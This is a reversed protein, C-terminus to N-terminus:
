TGGYGHVSAILRAPRKRQVLTNKTRRVTQDILRTLALNAETEPVPKRHFTSRTVGPLECPRAISLGPHDPAIVMRRRDASMPRLSEGFFGTGGGVPRDQRATEGVGRGPRHGEGRGERLFGAGPNEMAQRKWDSAMSQHVGHKAALQSTTMEGRLAELVAKAKFDAGM